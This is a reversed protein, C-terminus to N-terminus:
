QRSPPLSDAQCNLLCLNWGEDPFIGCAESCSLEQTWSCLGSVRSILGRGAAASAAHGPAPDGQLLLRACHRRGALSLASLLGREGCSSFGARRRLGACGSVSVHVLFNSFLSLGTSEACM